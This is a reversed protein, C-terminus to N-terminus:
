PEFTHSGNSAIIDWVGTDTSLSTGSVETCMLTVSDGVNTLELYKGAGGGRITDYNGSGLDKPTIRFTQNAIKVFRHIAGRMVTCQTLTVNVAGTAGKNTITMGGYQTGLTLNSITNYISTKTCRYSQRDYAGNALQIIGSYSKVRWTYNVDCILTVTSQEVTSNGHIYLRSYSEINDGSAPYIIYQASSDNKVITVEMGVYARMPLTYSSGSINNVYFIKQYGRRNVNTTTSYDNVDVDYSLNLNTSIATPTVSVTYTENVSKIIDLTANRTDKVNLIYPKASSGKIQPNTVTFGDVTGKRISTITGHDTSGSYITDGVSFTGNTNYVYVGSSNAFSVTGNPTASGNTVTSFLTPTSSMTGFLAYSDSTFGYPYKCEEFLCSILSIGNGGSVIDPDILWGHGQTYIASCGVFQLGGSGAIDFCNASSSYTSGSGAWSKCNIFVSEQLYDIKWTAATSTNNRHLATCNTFTCTQGIDGIVNTTHYWAHKSDAINKVHVNDFKCGDYARQMLIGHCTSSTGGDITINEIGISRIYSNTAHRFVLVSEGSFSSTAKITCFTSNWDMCNSSLKIGDKNITIPSSVAYVKNSFKIVSGVPASQICNNIATSDDTAGDCIAGFWEPYIENNKISGAITGSGTFIQYLGADIEGNIAVTKSLDPSIMAGVMLKLKINSPFTISSSLKYTGSPFVLETQTSGIATIINNIATYDNTSGNGTVGYSSNMVNFTSSGINTKETFNSVIAM